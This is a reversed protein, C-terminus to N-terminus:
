RRGRRCFRNRNVLFMADLKLLQVCRHRRWWASAIRALATRWSKSTTVTAWDSSCISIYTVIIVSEIELV